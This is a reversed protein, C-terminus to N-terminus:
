KNLNFDPYFFDRPEIVNTAKGCVDCTGQHWTSLNFQGRKSASQGCEQCVWSPYKYKKEKTM